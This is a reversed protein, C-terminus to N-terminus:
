NVADHKKCWDFVYLEVPAADGQIEFIEEVVRFRSHGREDEYGLLFYEWDVGDFLISLKYVSLIDHDAGYNKIFAESESGDLLIANQTWLKHDGVFAKIQLDGGYKEHHPHHKIQFHSYEETQPQSVYNGSYFQGKLQITSLVILLLCLQVARQHTM